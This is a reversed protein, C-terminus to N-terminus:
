QMQERTLQEQEEDIDLEVDPMGEAMDIIDPEPEPEDWEEEDEGELEPDPEDTLQLEIEAGTIDRVPLTADNSASFDLENQFDRILAQNIGQMYEKMERVTNFSPPLSSENNFCLRYLDSTYVIDIKEEMIDIFSRKVNRYMKFCLPDNIFFKDVILAFKSFDVEQPQIKFLYRQKVAITMLIRHGPEGYIIMGNNGIFSGNRRIRRGAPNEEDLTVRMRYALYRDFLCTMFDNYRSVLNPYMIINRHYMLFKKEGVIVREPEGIALSHIPIYENDLSLLPYTTERTTSLDGSMPAQILDM